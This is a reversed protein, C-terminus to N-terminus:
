RYAVWVCFLQSSHVDAWSFHQDQGGWPDDFIVESEDMEQLRMWHTGRSAAIQAGTKLQQAPSLEAGGRGNLVLNRYADVTVLLPYWSVQEAKVGFPGYLEVLTHINLMKKTVTQQAALVRAKPDAQSPDSNIGLLVLLLFDVFRLSEVDSWKEITEPELDKAMSLVRAKDGTFDGAGKGLATMTM